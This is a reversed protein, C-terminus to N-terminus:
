PQPRARCLAQSAISDASPQLEDDRLARLTAIEQQQEVLIGQALRRLRENRGRRLEIVAMDIAGQHHPIMMAVFDRDVDGSTTFHMAYMMRAMVANNEAIHVAPRPPRFAAAFAMAVAALALWQMEIEFRM